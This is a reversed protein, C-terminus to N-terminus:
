DDMAVCVCVGWVQFLLQRIRLKKFLKLTNEM